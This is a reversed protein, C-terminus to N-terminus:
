LESSSREQLIQLRDLVPRVSRKIGRTVLFAIALVTVLLVGLLILTLMRAQSYSAAAAANADSAKVDQVGALKGLDAETASFVPDGADLVALAKATQHADSLAVFNKTIALYRTYERKIRAIGRHDAPTTALSSFLAATKAFDAENKQIEGAVGAKDSSAATLHERQHRVLQEISTVMDDVAAVSPMATTTIYGTRQNMSSMSTLAVVGVVVAIGLVLAFSGYLKRGLTSTAIRFVGMFAGLDQPIVRRRCPPERTMSGADRFKVEQTSPRGPRGLRPM